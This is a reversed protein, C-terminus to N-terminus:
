FLHLIFHWRNGPSSLAPTKGLGKQGGLWDVIMQQCGVYLRVATTTADGIGSTHSIPNSAPISQTRSEFRYRGEGSLLMALILGHM